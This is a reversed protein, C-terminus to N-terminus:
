CSVVRVDAVPVSKCEADPYVTRIRKDMAFAAKKATM